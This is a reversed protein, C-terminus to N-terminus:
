RGRRAPPYDMFADTVDYCGVQELLVKDKSFHWIVIKRIILRCAKSDAPKKAYFHEFVFTIDVAVRAFKKELQILLGAKYYESTDRDYM